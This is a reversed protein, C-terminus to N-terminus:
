NSVGVSCKKELTESSSHDSDAGRSGGDATASGLWLVPLQTGGVEVLRPQTGGERGADPEHQSIGPCM